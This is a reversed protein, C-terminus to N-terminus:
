GLPLCLHERRWSRVAAPCRPGNSIRVFNGDWLAPLPLGQRHQPIIMHCRVLILTARMFYRVRKAVISRDAVVRAACDGTGSTLMTRLEGLLAVGLAGTALEAALWASIAAVAAAVAPM